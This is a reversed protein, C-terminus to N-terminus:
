PIRAFRINQDSKSPRFKKNFLDNLSDEPSIAVTENAINEHIRIKVRAYNNPPIHAKFARLDGELIIGLIYMHDEDVLVEFSGRYLRMSAVASLEYYYVNTIKIPDPHIAVKKFPM